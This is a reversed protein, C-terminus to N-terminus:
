GGAAYPNLIVIIIDNSLVNEPNNISQEGWQESSFSYVDSM